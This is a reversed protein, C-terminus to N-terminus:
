VCLTCDKKINLFLVGIYDEFHNSTTIPDLMEYNKILNNLDTKRIMILM